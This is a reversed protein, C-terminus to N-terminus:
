DPMHSPQRLRAIDRKPPSGFFRSYDRSFQSISMYGVLQSATTVDVSGSVMLRRAEHLRLAKQYQLPSLSTVTKFHEHLSSESMNVLAALDAVKIQRSFNDHIWSIARVVRQVGSDAFGLEAAHVGIPSRLVRIMIEDIVLPALLEADGPNHLCEVLRRVANMLSLDMDSVYGTSRNRIPPLGQPYVKLALESIRQPDLELRVGLFPESPSAHTAKMSVPLAVPFMLMQSAGFPYVKQGVTITKAGQSVILLSPTYFTQVYDMNTRSFRSLQLGSVRQSFVGDYPTVAEILSALRTTEAELTGAANDPAAVPPQENLVRM